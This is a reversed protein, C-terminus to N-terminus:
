PPSRCSHFGRGDGARDHSERAGEHGKLMPKVRSAAAGRGGLERGEGCTGERQWRAGTVELAIPGKGDISEHEVDEELQRRLAEAGLGLELKPADIGVRGGHQEVGDSERDVPDVDVPVGDRKAVVPLNEGHRPAIAFAATHGDEVSGSRAAAEVEQLGVLMVRQPGPLHPGLALFVVCAVPDRAM